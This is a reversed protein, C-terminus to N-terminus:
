ARRGVTSRTANRRDNRPGRPCCGCRDVDDAASVLQAALERAQTPTLGVAHGSNGGEGTDYTVTGNGTGTGDPRQEVQGWVVFGVPPDYNTFICQRALEPELIWHPCEVTGIPLPTDAFQAERANEAILHQVYRVRPREGDTNDWGALMVRQAETLQDTYDRWTETTGAGVPLPVTPSPITTTTM